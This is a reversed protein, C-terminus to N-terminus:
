ARRALLYARRTAVEDPYNTRTLRAEVTLGEAEMAEVVSEVEFFHFDLDVNHDCLQTFHRVENGVHFSVLALGRPRLVRRIERLAPALETTKLHILSYLALLCGFEENEAPLALLDGQRFEAKAYSRRAVAIMKPSLDIGVATIDCAALWGAVHGPGCGLDAIPAGPENEEILAALLARDLPKHDLEDGFRRAYEDAVTDYSQQVARHDRSTM